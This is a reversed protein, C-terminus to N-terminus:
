RKSISKTIIKGSETKYVVVYLGRQLNSFPVVLHDDYQVKQTIIKRGLINYVEIHHKAKKTFLINLYNNVPNPYMSFGEISHEKMGVSWANATFVVTIGDQPNGGATYVQVSVSGTGTIDNPYFYVILDGPENAPISYEASDVEETYCQENDCVASAWGTPLDQTRVWALRISSSLNNNVFNYLTITTNSPGSGVMSDNQVTYDQANVSNFTTCFLIGVALVYLKKM